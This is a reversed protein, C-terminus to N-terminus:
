RTSCENGINTLCSKPTFDLVVYIALSRRRRFAQFLPNDGDERQWQMANKQRLQSYAPIECQSSWSVIRSLMLASNQSISHTQPNGFPRQHSESHPSVVSAPKM